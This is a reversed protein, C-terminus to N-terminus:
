GGGVKQMEEGRIWGGAAGEEAKGTARWFGEAGESTRERIGAWSLVWCRDGPPSGDEVAVSRSPLPLAKRARLLWEWIM